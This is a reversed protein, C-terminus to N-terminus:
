FSPTEVSADDNVSLRALKRREVARDISRENELSIREVVDAFDEDKADIGAM